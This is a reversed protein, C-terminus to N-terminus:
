KMKEALADLNARMKREYWDKTLEDPKVTELPDLEVLEVGTVGKNALEKRLAEGANSTSYQPEVAILRVNEKSCKDILKKM